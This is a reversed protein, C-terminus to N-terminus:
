EWLDKVSYDEDKIIEVAVGEKHALEVMMQTGRGGPFAIVLEPKGEDLMQRNRIFGAAKGHGKWDAPFEWVPVFNTVAWDAAITDAGRAMGSIIILDPRAMWTLNPKDGLPTGNLGNLVRYIKDKNNYDRGGCVLVRLQNDEIVKYAM